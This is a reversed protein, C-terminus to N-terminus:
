RGNLPKDTDRVWVTYSTGRRSFKILGRAQLHAIAANSIMHTPLNMAATLDRDFWRIDGKGATIVAEPHKALVQKCQAINLHAM